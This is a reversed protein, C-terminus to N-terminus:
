KKVLFVNEDIEIRFLKIFMRTFLHKLEGGPNTIDASIELDDGKPIMKDGPHVVLKTASARPLNLFPLLGRAFMLHFRLGPVLCFLLLIALVILIMRISTKIKKFPFLQKIELRKVQQFIEEQIIKRFVISDWISKGGEEELEVATLLKENLHPDALEVYEAIDKLRMNRFLPALGYIVLVIFSMAYCAGSISYRVLLPLFYFRDAFGALFVLIFLTALSFFLGKFFRLFRWRRQFHWLKREVEEMAEWKKRSQQAM